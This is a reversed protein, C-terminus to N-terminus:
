QERLELGVTVNKLTGSALKIAIQKGEGIFFSTTLLSTKIATISFSGVLTANEFEGDHEYVEFDAAEPEQCGVFVQTCKALFFSIPGVQNSPNEQFTLFTGDTVIQHRSFYVNQKVPGEPGAPGQYGIFGREGKEGTDGKQGKPGRPGVEGQDGKDGKPGKPGREGKPGTKNKPGVVIM